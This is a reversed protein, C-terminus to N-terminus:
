WWGLAAPWRSPHRVGQILLWGFFAASAVLGVRAGISPRVEPPLLRGTVWLTHLSLLVLAAAAINASTVVLALADGSAITAASAALLAGLLGHAIRGVRPGPGGPRALRGATWLIDTASRLSGWVVGVQALGLIAFSALLTPIGWGLGHREIAGRALAIGAGAGGLAEGPPAVALALAVCLAMGALSGVVFLGWLDARLYRWWERWKALNEEGPAMTVGDAGLAVTQWGATRILPPASAAMGFGKDRLWQTFTANTMGGAGSYAALATLLRWDADAPLALPAALPGLFGDLVRRWVAAPVLAIGAALLFCLVALTTWVQASLLQGQVRHGLLSVAFSGLLVAYGLALVLWAEDPRPAHGLLLMALASGAGLAWGPWAVQGLLLASYIAGWVRPGPWSRMFGAFISEGTALTYRAMETNVVAQLLVSASCLWLLGPGHILVVAPGVLWDGAGLALGLLLGGPGLVRALNGPTFVPPHPLDGRRGEGPASV